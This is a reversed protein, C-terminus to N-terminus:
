MPESIKKLNDLGQRYVAKVFNTADEDGQGKAPMASVDKRKFHGEWTVLAKGDKTKSVSITASYDSVPLPSELIQYRFSMKKNDYALLVEKIKAGDQLTLVRIAGNKNNQGELLETQKVAPHWVGVDSYNNAKAWVDEAKANIEVTEKMTLRKAQDALANLPNLLALAISAAFIVKM